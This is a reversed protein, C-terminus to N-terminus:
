VYHKGGENLSIFDNARRASLILSYHTTFADGLDLHFREEADIRCWPLIYRNFLIRRYRRSPDLVRYLAEESVLAQNNDSHYMMDRVVIYQPDIGRVFGGLAALDFGYHFVEHFVSSFNIAVREGPIGLTQLTSHVDAMEHFFWANEIDRARALTVM